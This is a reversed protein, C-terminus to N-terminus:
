GRVDLRTGLAAPHVTRTSQDPGYLRLSLTPRPPFHENIMQQEEASLPVQQALKSAAPRPRPAAESARAPETGTTERAPEPRQYATIPLSRYPNIRNSM